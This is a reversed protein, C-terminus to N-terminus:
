LVQGALDAQTREIGERLTDVIFDIEQRNLTLAPSMVNLHVLPRVILGLDECHNAVQHGIDMSEPFLEKTEKNAVFEVCMMFKRGRVQGVLPLEELEKLRTEFYPGLERVHELIRERKMIELVKLSAALM